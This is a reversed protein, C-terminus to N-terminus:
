PQPIVQAATIVERRYGQHYAISGSVSVRTNAYSELNVGPAPLVYVIPEGEGRQLLYAKQGAVPMVSRVLLGPGLTQSPAAAQPTSAPSPAPASAPAPALSPAPASAAGAAPAATERIYTYQSTAQSAAAPPKAVPPYLITPTPVLRNDGAAVPHVSSTTSFTGPTAGQIRSEMFHIHNYCRICLNHDSTQKALQLYLSKAEAYKGEKEAQKAQLWLPDEVPAPETSHLAGPNIESPQAAGAPAGSPPSIPSGAPPPASSVTQVPGVAQVASAPIFRVERAPPQIMVWFGTDDEYARRGNLIVVVTGRPLRAQVVDPKRDVVSSGLRVEVGDQLIQAEPGNPDLRKFFREQVWSFSGPPPTIALWGPEKEEVVEVVAGQKLKSTPYSSAHDTPLCRVEVEPVIVTAKYPVTGARATLSVALMWVAGGILRM